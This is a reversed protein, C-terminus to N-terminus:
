KRYANHTSAIYVIKKGYKNELEDMQKHILEFKHAKESGGFLDGQSTKDTTLGFLSIGTTRYLIGKKYVKNFHSQILSILIEPANTPTRM